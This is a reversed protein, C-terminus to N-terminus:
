MQERLRNWAKEDVKHKPKLGFDANCELVASSGLLFDVAVEVFTWDDKLHVNKQSSAAATDM